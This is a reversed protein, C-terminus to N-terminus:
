SANLDPLIEAPISLVPTKSHYSMAKAKSFNFLEQLFGRRHTLMVIIDIQNKRLYNILGDLLDNDDLVRFLLKDTVPFAQRFKEMRQAYFEIHGTDVNICHVEAGFPEFIDILKRLAVKEEEQYSTTFAIRDIHGDFVAKEPVALVPCEAKEMIEGTTSGLFVEKFGRAGTTGMIILDPKEQEVVKLITPVVPKGEQLIHRLEVEGMGNKEALEKLQPISDRYNQFANLDITEYFKALAEPYYLSGVDPHHYVHLTTISAGWKAAFHLAYIFAKEAAPSFDTPFFINKM